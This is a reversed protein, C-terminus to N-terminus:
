SSKLNHQFGSSLWCNYWYRYWGYKDSTCKSNSDSNNSISVGIANKKALIEQLRNRLTAGIDFDGSSMIIKHYQSIIPPHTITSPEIPDLLLVTTHYLGKHRFAGLVKPGKFYSLSRNTKSHKTNPNNKIYWWSRVFRGLEYKKRVPCPACLQGNSSKMKSIFLDLECHVSCPVVTVTGRVETRAFLVVNYPTRQVTHSVM